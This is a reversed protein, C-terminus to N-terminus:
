LQKNVQWKSALLGFINHDVFKNYLWETQRLVGEHTFGLKKPIACSKDNGVACYINIRNLKLEKFGYDILTKCSITMIGQSQNSQNLWYGIEAVKDEWDISDYSITGVLKDIHWIGMTIVKGEAFEKQTNKIFDFSDQFKTNKDLWPLWQRLYQRNNEILAFLDKANNLELLRLYIAENVKIQTLYM